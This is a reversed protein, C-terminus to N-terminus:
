LHLSATAVATEAPMRAVIAAMVLATAATAATAMTRVKVMVMVAAAVLTVATTMTMAVVATTAHTCCTTWAFRGFPCVHDEMAALPLEVMPIIIFETELKEGNQIM